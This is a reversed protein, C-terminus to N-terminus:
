KTYYQIFNNGNEPHNYGIHDAMAEMNLEEYTGLYDSGVPKCGIIPYAKAIVVTDEQIMTGDFMVTGAKLTVPVAAPQYGWESERTCGELRDVPPNLEELRNPDVQFIDVVLHTDPNGTYDASLGGGYHWGQMAQTDMYKTRGKSLYNKWNGQGVRLTGYVMMFEATFNDPVHVPLGESILEEFNLNEKRVTKMNTITRTGEDTLNM